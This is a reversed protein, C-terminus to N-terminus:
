SGAEQGGNPSHVDQDSFLTSQSSMDCSVSFPPTARGPVLEALLREVRRATVDWPFRSAAHERAARGMRQLAEPADLLEAMVRALDDADEPAFCRLWDGELGTLGPVRSAVVPRGAAAADRVKLPSYGYRALAKSKPCLTLDMVNLWRNMDAYDVDGAFIVHQELNRRRVEARVEDGARGSGVVLLRARPVSRLTKEFANIVLRLGQWRSLNGCFGVVPCDAGLLERKLAARRPLPHFHDIDTGNDAVCLSGAVPRLRCGIQPTVAVTGSASLADLYQLGTGGWGLLRSSRQLRVEAGVWGNHETVVPPCKGQRLEALLRPLLAPLLRWRIYVVDYGRALGAITWAQRLGHVAAATLSDDYRAAQARDSATSTNPGDVDRPGDKPQSSSAAYPPSHGLHASSEASSFSSAPKGQAEPAADGSASRSCSRSVTRLGEGPLLTDVRHGLRALARTLERFHILSADNKGVDVLGAALIKM